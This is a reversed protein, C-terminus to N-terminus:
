KGSKRLKLREINYFLIWEEFLNIYKQLSAINNNYLTEKKLISHFSEM